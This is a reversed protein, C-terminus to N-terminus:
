LKAHTKIQVPDFEKVYQLTSVLQNSQANILNVKCFASTKSIKFVYADIYLPTGEQVASHYTIQM